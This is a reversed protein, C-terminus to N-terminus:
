EDAADSTYLLCNEIRDRDSNQKRYVAAISRIKYNISQDDIEILGIWLFILDFVHEFYYNYYFNYIHM